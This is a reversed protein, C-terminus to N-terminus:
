TLAQDLDAILDDPHELGISLRLLSEPTTSYQGEVSRRHEILSETGGLSTARLFVKVRGAVALAREAGGTVEISLMGGFASMQRRAIAHGPHSPLGPFHVATVGKRGALFEAVRAANECHTRMRSPLSRLGRTVLWCDFPGPVAGGTQQFTRIREFFGAADRAVIAGGLVDSHGGMYKTTSHLVLDAGLAIPRQLAPTAWTNDVLLPIGRARALAALAAIDTVRLLPNSPTEVWILRTRPTIAREAAGADTLDAFTFALGWREFQDRLLTRVGHYVDAPAVVHDGPSLSQFVALAAAQGSGFAAAAAGGELTALAGELAARGPNGTRAYIYGHPYSGDAAREFTTALHIPPVAAGTVPDPHLGAHAALTEFRPARDSDSM